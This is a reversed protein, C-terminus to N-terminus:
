KTSKVISNTDLNLFSSKNYKHIFYKLCSLGTQDGSTLCSYVIYVPKGDNKCFGRSVTYSNFPKNQWFDSSLFSKLKDIKKTILLKNLLISNGTTIVEDTFNYSVKNYKEQKQEVKFITANCLSFSINDDSVNFSNLLNDM